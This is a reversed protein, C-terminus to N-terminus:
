SGVATTIRTGDAALVPTMQFDLNGQILADVEGESTLAPLLGWFRYKSTGVGGPDIEFFLTTAATFKASWTWSPAGSDLDTLLTDFTSLSGSLQKLGPIFIRDPSTSFVTADLMDAEQNLNFGKGQAVALLPIYNGTVTIPGVKSGTFTVKGFLYDISSIDGSVIPVGNDFFSPTVAPDWVRKATDTLQYPGAGSGGMAETTFATSTGGVYLTTKYAAVASM